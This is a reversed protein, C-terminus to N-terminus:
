EVKREKRENCENKRTKKGEKKADEKINKYKIILNLRQSIEGKRGEIMPVEVAAVLSCIANKKFFRGGQKSMSLM